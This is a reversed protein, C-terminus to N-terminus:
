PLRLGRHVGLGRAAPHVAVVRPAPSHVGASDQVCPRARRALLRGAHPSPAGACVRPRLCFPTVTIVRSCVDDSRGRTCGGRSGGNRVLVAGCGAIYHTCGITRTCARAVTGPYAKASPRELGPTARIRLSTGGALGVRPSAVWPVPTASSRAARCDPAAVVGRWRRARRLRVQCITYSPQKRSCAPAALRGEIVPLLTAESAAKACFECLSPEVAKVEEDKDSSAYAAGLHKKAPSADGNMVAAVPPSGARALLTQKVYRCLCRWPDAGRPFVRAQLCLCWM